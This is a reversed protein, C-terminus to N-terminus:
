ETHPLCTIMRLVEGAIRFVEVESLSGDGAGDASSLEAARRIGADFERRTLSTGPEDTM